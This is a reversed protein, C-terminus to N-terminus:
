HTFVLVRWPDSWMSRYEFPCFGPVVAQRCLLLPSSAADTVKNLLRLDRLSGM